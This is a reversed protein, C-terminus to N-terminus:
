FIEHNMFHWFLCIQQVTSKDKIKIKKGKMKKKLIKQKKM